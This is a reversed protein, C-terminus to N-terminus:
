VIKTARFLMNEFGPKSIAHCILFLCCLFRDGTGDAPALLDLFRDHRGANGFRAAPLRYFECRLLHPAHENFEALANLGIAIINASFKGFFGTFNVIALRLMAIDVALCGFVIGGFQGFFTNFKATNRPNRTGVASRM